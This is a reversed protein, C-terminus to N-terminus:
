ADTLNMYDTSMWNEWGAIGRIGVHYLNSGFYALEDNM